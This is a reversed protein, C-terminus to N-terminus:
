RLYIEVDKLFGNIRIKYNVDIFQNAARRVTWNNFGTLKETM